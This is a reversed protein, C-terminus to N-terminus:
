VYNKINVINGDKKYVRPVRKSINCVIEYSITGIVDAIDDASISNGFEDEGIFTVESGLKVDPIDTVDIMCQDMCIRGVIPALAGNIIVKGKGTLQRPLGDAYGIPLTAIKSKRETIFVRGYSISSGSELTKLHVITSKLSMVPKLHVKTKDVDKSPYYGYLMIGARVGDYELNPFDIVAASNSVHKYKINVGLQKLYEDFDDFRKIQLFTFEKNKEDASAFHTFMGEIEIGPLKSIKEVEVAEEATALFGIRSMGTDVAIHIKAKANKKVAVKSLAEADDYSYITQEIDFDIIEDYFDHATYGLIVIPAKLGNKRLEIAETIVAVAFRSVGNALLTKYIDVACHGYADAKIVGIVERGNSVRIVEKINNELANLDIEAWTTRLKHVM